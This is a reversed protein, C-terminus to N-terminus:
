MSNLEEKATTYASYGLQFEDKKDAPVTFEFTKLTQMPGGCVPFCPKMWCPAMGGAQDESTAITKELVTKKADALMDM